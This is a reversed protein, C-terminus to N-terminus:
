SANMKSVRVYPGGYSVRLPYQEMKGCGGILNSKIVVEDSLGDILNLTEFISGTIVNIKVPEAIKGNKIRYSKLPAITFTSLGSGHKITEIVYGNDIGSVLDQKTSDGKEIYTSTMRVIPEFETNMARGNGTPKENLEYATQLSHLRGKLVGDKILYTKDAKTGEDDFPVYGSTGKVNGDDIISLIGSGVNKGLQWEKKMAEDGLMFDSESKHGFSEHAFVGAAAPSLLVPSVSPSITEASIFTESEKLEDTFENERGLLEPFKDSYIGYNSMFQEKGDSMIYNIRLYHGLFDYATHVDQSSAFFTKTYSDVYTSAPIKISNFKNMLADYHELLEKKEKISHGTNDYSISSMDAPKLASYFPMSKGNHTQSLEILSRIGNELKDLDTLSTYFWRGGNYIRIFAGLETQEICNEPEHNRISIMTSIREDIRVDIYDCKASSLNLNKLKESYNM